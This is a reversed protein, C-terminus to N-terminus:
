TLYTVKKKRGECSLPEASSSDWYINREVTISQKELWYVRCGNPSNDDVGVWRGEAVRRGLKTGREVCVWICSGWVRAQSLDPKQGTAAKLPMGGDLVKTPTRNKLWVAHRVAEGWLIHPLGSKHLMARVKELLTRNLCEAIGNHQPTDHVTLKQKTGAAKLYM